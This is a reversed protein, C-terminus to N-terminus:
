NSFINQNQEEILSIYFSVPGLILYQGVLFRNGKVNGDGGVLHWRTPLVFSSFQILEVRPLTEVLHTM